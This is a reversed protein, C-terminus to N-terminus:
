KKNLLLVGIGFLATSPGQLSHVYSSMRRRAGETLEDMARRASGSVESPTPEREAAGLDALAKAVLPDERSWEAGFLAYEREFDNGKSRVAWILRGLSTRGSEPMSSYTYRLASILSPNVEMFAAIRRVTDHMMMGESGESSRKAAEKRRWLVIYTSVPLALDLGILAFSILPLDPESSYGIVHSSWGGDPGVTYDVEERVRQFNDSVGDGDMDDGFFPPIGPVLLLLSAAVGLCLAGLSFALPAARM